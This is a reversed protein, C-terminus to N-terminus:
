PCSVIAGYTNRIGVAHGTCIRDQENRTVTCIRKKRYMDTLELTIDTGCVKMTLHHGNIIRQQSNVTQKHDPEHGNNTRDNYARYM